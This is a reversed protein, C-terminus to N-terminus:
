LHLANTATTALGIRGFSAKVSEPLIDLTVSTVVGFAGLSVAAANFLDNEGRTLHTVAGEATVLELAAVSGALIPHKGTGHTGTAIAGGITAQPFSAVNEL